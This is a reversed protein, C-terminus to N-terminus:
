MGDAMSTPVVTLRVQVVSSGSPEPGHWAAESAAVAVIDVGAKTSGKSGRVIQLLSTALRCALELGAVPTQVEVPPPAKEFEV